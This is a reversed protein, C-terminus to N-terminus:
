RYTFTPTRKEMFADRGERYDPSKFAGKHLSRSLENDATAGDSIAGVIQKVARITYQSLRTLEDAYARTERALEAAPFLRTVLDSLRKTESLSYAIGLRAPPICFRATEDAYRLDCCLALACGGGFCIGQIQAITPKELSALADFAKYIAQHYDHARAETAHVDKFEAIDAGAAFAKPTAGRVILVKLAPDDAVEAVLRPIAQWIAQNMSNLKAPRNLVLEAVEGDRTLYIPQESMGYAEQKGARGNAV